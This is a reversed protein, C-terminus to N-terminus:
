TAIVADSRAVGLGTELLEIFDSMGQGTKASVQLVKM